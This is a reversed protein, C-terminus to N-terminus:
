VHARGIQVPGPPGGARGRGRALQALADRDLAGAATRPLREVFVVAPEAGTVEAARARLDDALADSPAFLPFLVAFVTTEGDSGPAVACEILATNGLLVREVEFSGADGDARPVDTGARGVLWVNGDTDRRARDGTVFWDRRFAARAAQVDGEYTGFLTPPYGLVALDGEAGPEVERGDADVVGVRQGPLEVGLAGPPPEPEAGTTLVIGTEATGYGDHVTLGFRERFWAVTEPDLGAGTSLVRRLRQPREEPPLAVAALLRYDTPGQVLITVGLRQLLEVREFPDSEGEQVVVEAGAAWVGLLAFWVAAPVDGPVACWVLDGPRAQLWERAVAEQAYCAAHTLVVGKPPGSSGRTYLVLADEGAQTSETPAVRPQEALAEAAEDTFVARVGPADRVAGRAAPSAVVLAAGADRWRYALGDADISGACPVPVAGLKMAGLLVPHWSPTGHAAVLVRDGRAVGYTRLLWSWQAADGAVHAFTQRDIVGEADILTLARRHPDAGLREVVDGAFNFRRPVEWTGDPLLPSM